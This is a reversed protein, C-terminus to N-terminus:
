HLISKLRTVSPSIVFTLHDDYRNLEELDFAEFIDEALLLACYRAKEYFSSTITTNFYFCVDSSYILDSFGLSINKAVHIAEVFLVYLVRSDLNEEDIEQSIFFTGSDKVKIEMNESKVAIILYDDRENIRSEPFVDELVLRCKKLDILNKRHKWEMIIGVQIKNIM